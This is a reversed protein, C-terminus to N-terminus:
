FEPTCCFENLTIVFPSRCFGDNSCSVASVRYRFLLKLCVPKSNKCFPPQLKRLNLQFLSNIRKGVYLSCAILYICIINSNVTAVTESHSFITARYFNPIYYYCYCCIASTTLSTLILEVTVDITCPWKM